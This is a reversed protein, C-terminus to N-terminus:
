KDWRLDNAADARDREAIDDPDDHPPLAGELWLGHLVSEAELLALARPEAGVEGDARLLCRAVLRIRLRPSLGHAKTAKRWRTGEPAMARVARAAEVACSRYAEPRQLAHAIAHLATGLLSNGDWGTMVPEADLAEEWPDTGRAEHKM